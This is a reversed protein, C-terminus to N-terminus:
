RSGIRILIARRLDDGDICPILSGYRSLPNSNRLLQMPSSTVQSACYRCGYMVVVDSSLPSTPPGGIGTKSSLFGMLYIRVNFYPISTARNTNSLAPLRQIASPMIVSYKGRPIDDLYRTRCLKKMMTFRVLIFMSYLAYVVYQSSGDMVVNLPAIFWLTRQLPYLTLGM